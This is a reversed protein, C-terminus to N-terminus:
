STKLVEELAPVEVKIGRAKLRELGELRSATAM